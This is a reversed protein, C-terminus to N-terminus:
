ALNFLLKRPILLQSAFLIGHLKRDTILLASFWNYKSFYSFLIEIQSRPINLDLKDDILFVAKSSTLPTKNLMTNTLFQTIGAFYIWILKLFEQGWTAEVETASILCTYVRTCCFATLILILSFSSLHPHTTPESFPSIVDGQSIQCLSYLSIVRSIPRIPFLVLLLVSCSPTHYLVNQKSFLWNWEVPM